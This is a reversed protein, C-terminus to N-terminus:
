NKLVTLAGISEVDCDYYSMDTAMWPRLVPIKEQINADNIVMGTSMSRKSQISRLWIKISNTLLKMM